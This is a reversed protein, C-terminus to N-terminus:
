NQKEEVQKSLGEYCQTYLISVQSNIQNNELAHLMQNIPMKAFSM